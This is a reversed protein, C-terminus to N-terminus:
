VGEGEPLEASDAHGLELPPLLALAQLLLLAHAELQKDALPLSVRVPLALLAAEGLELPVRLAEPEKKLMEGLAEAAM